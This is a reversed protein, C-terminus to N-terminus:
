PRLQAPGPGARRWRRALGAFPRSDIAALGFAILTMGALHGPALREGLIVIGLVLASVPILFTVLLLNTVGAAALIRFYIVYALATSLLALAILAGWAQPGPPPLTWPRDALLALPLILLTSASIQGAATILPPVGRFGRGLIGALAYSLAAALCALQATVAAGLGQLAAPGVMLAVGAFGLVVGCLRGPSMREDRTLLHALLVTFLPTTANLIAALGSAIATQGWVILSFPILNNLAGMMVFAGGLRLSRPVPQRSALVMAVLAVAALSVRALVVTFPPLEALAVEAFFFSGGWLVSLAVLLLWEALGMRRKIAM